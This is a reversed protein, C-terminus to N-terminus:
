ETKSLENFQFRIKYPCVRYVIADCNPCTQFGSVTWSSSECRLWYDSYLDKFQLVIKFLQSSLKKLFCTHILIVSLIATPATAHPLLTSLKEDWINLTWHSLDVTVIWLVAAQACALIQAEHRRLTQLEPETGYTYLKSAKLVLEM